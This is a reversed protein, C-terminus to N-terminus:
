TQAVKVSKEGKPVQDKAGCGSLAAETLDEPGRVQPFIPLEGM